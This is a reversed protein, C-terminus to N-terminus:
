QLRAASGLDTRIVEVTALAETAAHALEQARTSLTGQRAAATEGLHEVAAQVPELASALEQPAQEVFSQELHRMAENHRNVLM